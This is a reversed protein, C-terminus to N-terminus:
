GGLPNGSGIEAEFEPLMYRRTTDDLEEFNMAMLKTERTERGFIGLPQGILQPGRLPCTLKM